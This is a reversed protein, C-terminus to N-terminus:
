NHAGVWLGVLLSVSSLIIYGYVSMTKVFTIDSNMSSVEQKIYNLAKNM